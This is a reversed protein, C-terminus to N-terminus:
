ELVVGEAVHYSLRLTSDYYLHVSPAVYIYILWSVSQYLHTSGTKWTASKTLWSKPLTIHSCGDHVPVAHDYADFKISEPADERPVNDGPSDAKDTVFCKHIVM